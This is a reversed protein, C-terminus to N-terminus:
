TRAQGIEYNSDIRQLSLLLNESQKIAKLIEIRNKKNKEILKLDEKAPFNKISVCM